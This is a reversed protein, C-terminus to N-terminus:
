ERELANDAGGQRAESSVGEGGFNRGALCRTDV